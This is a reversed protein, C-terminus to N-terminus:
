HHLRSARADSTRARKRSAVNPRAELLDTAPWDSGRLAPANRHDGQIHRAKDGGRPASASRVPNTAKTRRTKQDRAM